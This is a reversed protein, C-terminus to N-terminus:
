RKKTTEIERENILYSNQFTITKGNAVQSYVYEQSSLTTTEVQSSKLNPHGTLRDLRFAPYLKQVNCM